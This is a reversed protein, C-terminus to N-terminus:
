RRRSEVFSRISDISWVFTTIRERKELEPIGAFREDLVRMAAEHVEDPVGWLDSFCRSRYEELLERTSVVVSYDAAPRTESPPIVEALDRERIGLDCMEFGEEACARKYADRVEQTQSESLDYALSLLNGRTVRAVEELVGTWDRILHLVHVSLAHDFTGDAFPMAHADAQLLGDLGKDRARCLMGRSLDIGVMEVGRRSLPASFRGTGVGVELNTSGASLTEALASVMREMQEPPHSRTEDFRDAIRDFSHTM